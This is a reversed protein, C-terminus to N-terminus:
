FNAKKVYRNKGVIYFRKGHIKVSGGYTVVSKHKKLVKRNARKGKANYLYANHTLRRKIGSINNAKVFSNDGLAYYKKGDIIKTGYTAISQGAFYEGNKLAGNQNYVYTNHMVTRYVPREIPKPTSPTTPKTVTNNNTVPATVTPTSPSSPTVSSHDEAVKVYTVTKDAVKNIDDNQKIDVPYKALLQSTSLKDKGAPKEPTGTGVEQWIAKTNFGTKNLDDNVNFTFNTLGDLGELINSMTIAKGVGYPSGLKFKGIDLSTLSKDGTFMYDMMDVASTDFNSLNLKTLSSCGNFMSIMCTVKSTNFHSLDIRTLSSCGYFTAGMSTVNATDTLGDIERLGSCFAFLLDMNTVSSTDVNTLDIKELKPLNSFLGSASGKITLKGKFNISHIENSNTDKSNIDIASIPTPDAGDPAAITGEPITLEHTKQDYTVKLGNWDRVIPKDKNTDANGKDATTQETTQAPATTKASATTPSAAVLGLAALAMGCFLLKEKKQQINNHNDM